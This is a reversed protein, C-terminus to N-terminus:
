KLLHVNSTHPNREFKHGAVLNEPGTQEKRVWDYIAISASAAANLCEVQGYQPIQIIGQSAGMIVEPIGAGENGVVLMTKEPYPYSFIDKSGKGIELCVMAYGNDLCYGILDESTRINTLPTLCHAGTAASKNWRKRGVLLIEKVSAANATRIISGINFDNQLNLIAIALTKGM